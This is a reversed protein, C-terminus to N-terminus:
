NIRERAASLRKAVKKQWNGNAKCGSAIEGDRERQRARLRLEFVFSECQNPLDSLMCSILWLKGARPKGFDLSWCTLCATLLGCGCALM